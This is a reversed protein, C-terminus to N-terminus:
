LAMGRFATDRIVRSQCSSHFSEEHSSLRFLAMVGRRGRHLSVSSLVIIEAVIRSCTLELKDAKQAGINCTACASLSLGTHGSVASGALSVLGQLRASM